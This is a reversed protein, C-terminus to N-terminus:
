GSNHGVENFSHLRFCFGWPGLGKPYLLLVEMFNPICTSQGRSGIRGLWTEGPSVAPSRVSASLCLGVSCMQACTSETCTGEFM